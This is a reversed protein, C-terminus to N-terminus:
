HDRKVTKYGFRYSLTGSEDAEYLTIVISLCVRQGKRGHSKEQSISIKSFSGERLSNEESERVM